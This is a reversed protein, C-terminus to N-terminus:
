LSCGSSAHKEPLADRNDEAFSALLGRNGLSYEVARTGQRKDVLALSSYPCVM